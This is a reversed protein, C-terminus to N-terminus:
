CNCNNFGCRENYGRGCDSSSSSSDDTDELDLVIKNVESIIMMQATKIDHKSRLYDFYNQIAIGLSKKDSM